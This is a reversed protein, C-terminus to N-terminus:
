LVIDGYLDPKHGSTGVPFSKIHCELMELYFGGPDAGTLIALSFHQILILHKNKLRLHCPNVIRIRIIQTMQILFLGYRNILFFVLAKM